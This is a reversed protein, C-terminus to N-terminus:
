NSECPISSRRWAHFEEIAMGNLRPRSLFFAAFECAFKAALEPTRGEAIYDHAFAANFIDGAGVSNPMSEIRIGEIRVPEQDSSKLVAGDAGCKVIIVRPCPDWKGIARCAAFPDSEGTLAEAEADNMFAVDVWKLTSIVQERAIWSADSWNLDFIITTNQQRLREFCELLVGPSVRPPQCWGSFIAADAKPFKQEALFSGVHDMVGPNTLFLREGDDRILATTQCTPKDSYPRLGDHTLGLGTLEERIWAGNEDQGIPGMCEVSLGMASGAVAFNGSNGGLRYETSSFETEKGWAPLNSFRGLIQDVTFDGIALIKTKM